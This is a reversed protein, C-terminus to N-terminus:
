RDFHSDIVKGDKKSIEVEFGGGERVTDPLGVARWIVTVSDDGEDIVIVNYKDIELKKAPIHTRCYAGM